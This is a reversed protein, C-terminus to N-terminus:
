EYRRPNQEMERIFDTVMKELSYEPKWGWEKQANSDDLPLNWKDIINQKELDPKFDIQAGTVNGKVVNALVEASAVPKIGALLYNITKINEEPAEGLKVMARAADKFYLIPIKTEPKVWVTFPNGKACEEIVWCTYQAVGPSRVGPGVIGPYRVGRFDLGYKRRYFLGIHEGFLKCAGYLITPRQLTYDSIVKDKIDAGYTGISSSYLVQKVDFLRAAELVHYMGLVNVRFSAAPDTESPVSLMAGMHYIVKPRVKKVVSLVHNFNGLDGGVIEIQDAVDVL